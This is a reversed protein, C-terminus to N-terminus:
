ALGMEIGSVCSVQSKVKKSLTSGTYQHGTLFVPNTIMVKFIEYVRFQATALYANCAKAEENKSNIRGYACNRTATVNYSYRQEYAM